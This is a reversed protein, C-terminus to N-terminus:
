GGRPGFFLTLALTITFLNDEDGNCVRGLFLLLVFVLILGLVRFIPHLLHRRRITITPNNLGSLPYPCCLYSSPPFHHPGLKPLAVHCVRHLGASSSSPIRGAFDNWGGLGIPTDVELEYAESVVAFTGDKM